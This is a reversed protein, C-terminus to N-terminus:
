KELYTKPRPAIIRKGYPYYERNKNYYYRYDYQTNFLVPKVDNLIVGVLKSRDLNRFAKEIGAYSTRGCRVVLILGDSLATLVQADAIPSLPPSDLIITDFETQLYALLKRMREHSLLEIPNAANGGATMFYLRECRQMYCYPQLPEGELYGLLGPQPSIGLFKHLSPKRLDCDVIIVRRDPDKSFSAALNLSILSKGDGSLCSSITIVRLPRLSSAESLRVKLSKFQESVFSSENLLTEIKDSLGNRGIEPTLSEFPFSSRVVLATEEGDASESVSILHLSSFVGLVKGLRAHDVGTAAVLEQLTRPLNLQNLVSLEQPYWPLGTFGTGNKLAIRQGPELRFPEVNHRASSSSCGASTWGRRCTFPSRRLPSPASTSNM